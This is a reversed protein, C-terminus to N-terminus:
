RRRTNQCVHLHPQHKDLFLLLRKSKWTAIRFYAANNVAAIGRACAQNAEVAKTRHRVSRSLEDCPSCFPLSLRQCHAKCAHAGHVMVGHVAHMCAYWVGHRLTNRSAHSGPVMVGHVAHMCVLCWSAMRQMCAHTGLVMVGHAAHTCAHTGPVMVGHVTHMMRVLGQMM